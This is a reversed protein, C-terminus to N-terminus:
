YSCADSEYFPVGYDNYGYKTNEAETFVEKKLLKVADSNSDINEIVYFEIGNYLIEDGIKYSEHALVRNFCLFMMLIIFIIRKRM